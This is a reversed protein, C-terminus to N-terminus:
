PERSRAMRIVDFPWTVIGTSIRSFAPSNGPVSTSKSSASSLTRM